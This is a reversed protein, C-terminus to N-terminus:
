IHILSLNVVDHFLASLALVEWDGRGERAHIAHANVYVRGLHGWDHAGDRAMQADVFGVAESWIVGPASPASLEEYRRAGETKSSM